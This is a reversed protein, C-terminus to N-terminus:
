TIIKGMVDVLNRLRSFCDRTEQVKSRSAYYCVNGLQSLNNHYRWNESSALMNDLKWEHFGISLLVYSNSINSSSKYYIYTNVDRTKIDDQDIITEIFFINFFKTFFINSQRRWPSKMRCRRQKRRNRPFKSNHPSVTARYGPM